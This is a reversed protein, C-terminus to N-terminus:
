INDASFVCTWDSVDSDNWWAEGFTNHHDPLKHPDDVSIRLIVTRHVKIAWAMAATMTTFGRVPSKIYGTAHYRKVKKPTTVHYLETPKM